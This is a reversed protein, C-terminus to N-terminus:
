KSFNICHFIWCSITKKLLELHSCEHAFFATALPPDESFEAPIRFTVGDLFRTESKDFLNPKYTYRISGSYGSDMSLSPNEDVEVRPDRLDLNFTPYVQSLIEELPVDKKTDSILGRM